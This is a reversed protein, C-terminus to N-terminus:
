DMWFHDSLLHIFLSYAVLVNLLAIIVRNPHMVESFDGHLGISLHKM